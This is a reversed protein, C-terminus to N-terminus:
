EPRMEYVGRTINKGLSININVNNDLYQYKISHKIVRSLESGNEITTDFNKGSKTLFHVRSCLINNCTLLKIFIEHINESVKNASKLM